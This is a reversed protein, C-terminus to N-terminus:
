TVELFGCMLRTGATERALAQAAAALLLQTAPDQELKRFLEAIRRNRERPRELATADKLSESLQPAMPRRALIEAAEALPAPATLDVAPRIPIPLPATM